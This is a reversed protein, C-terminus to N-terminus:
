NMKRVLTISRRKRKSQSINNLSTVPGSLIKLTKNTFIRTYPKFITWENKLFLNIPIERNSEWWWTEGLKLFLTKLEVTHLQGFDYISTVDNDHNQIIGVYEEEAYRCVTLFPYKERLKKFLNNDM